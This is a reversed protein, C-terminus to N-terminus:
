FFVFASSCLKDLTLIFSAMRILETVYLKISSKWWGQMAWACTVYETSVKILWKDREFRVVFQTGMISEEKSLSHVSSKGGRSLQSCVLGKKGSELSMNQWLVHLMHSPHALCVMQNTEQKNIPAKIAPVMTTPTTGNPSQYKSFPDEPNVDLQALDGTLSKNTILFSFQSLFDFRTVEISLDDEPFVVTAQTHPSL